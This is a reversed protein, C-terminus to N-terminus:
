NGHFAEKKFLGWLTVSSVGRHSWPTREFPGHLLAREIVDAVTQIVEPSMQLSLAAVFTNPKALAASILQNICRVYVCM